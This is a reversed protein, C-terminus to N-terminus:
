QNMRKMYGERAPMRKLPHKGPMSARCIYGMESMSRFAALSPALLQWRATGAPARTRIWTRGPESRATGLMCLNPNCCSGNTVQVHQDHARARRSCPVTRTTSNRAGGKWRSPENREACMQIRRIPKLADRGRPADTLMWTMTRRGGHSRQVKAM